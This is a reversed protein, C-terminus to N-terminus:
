KSCSQPIPGGKNLLIVNKPLVTVRPFGEGGSPFLVWFFLIVGCSGLPQGWCWFDLPCFSDGNFHPAKFFARWYLMGTHPGVTPGSCPPMKWAALQLVYARIRTQGLGLARGLNLLQAAM